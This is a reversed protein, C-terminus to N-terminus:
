RERLARALQDKLPKMLYSLVTRSQTQIHAEVPMGSLLTVSGLRAIEDPSMAIRATYFSLGTRQDTSTDASVRGVAGNIEPTTRQNLSPFRLVVPQGLRVQDIQEPSIRVEAILKDADPVILMVPEGPAVVGGVTHVTSQHVVGDQPARIEIRKLQDEAAVRREKLEGIKGEIERLEKGVETGLDRDIQIIQLETEAIRAKAQAIAASLQAREGEIRAAERELVTVRNISTLKKKFLTQVGSLERQILDIERRKTEEQAAQGAIEDNMKDIRQKLQMKQGARAARRLEFLNREGALLHEIQPEEERGAWDEPVAIEDAADREAELRAKRATLEDLSRAVIQLGARTMTDDLRVLVDGARVREGDRAMIAGVIGGTPHQVKKVNSDVVLSGAAIVAGAIQTTSAWGGLGVCLFVVLLIGFLTTRRISQEIRSGFDSM